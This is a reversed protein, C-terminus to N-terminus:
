HEMALHCIIIGVDEVDFNMNGINDPLIEM